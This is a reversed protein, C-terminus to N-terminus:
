VFSFLFNRKLQIHITQQEATFVKPEWVRLWKLYQLLYCYEWVLLPIIRNQKKTGFRAQETVDHLMMQLLMMKIYFSRQQPPKYDMIPSM